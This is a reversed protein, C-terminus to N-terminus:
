LHQQILEVAARRHGLDILTEAKSLRVTQEVLAVASEVSRKKMASCVISQSDAPGRERLWDDYLEVVQETYDVLTQLDEAVKPFLPAHGEFYRKAICEAAGVNAYLDLLFREAAEAWPQRGFMPAGEDVTRDFALCLLTVHLWNAKQEELLNRNANMFLHYLFIADKEALQMARKVADQAQGKMEQRVAARAQAPLRILPYAGDPQGKLSVAWDRLTYFRHVEEMWLLVTQTPTMVSSVRALRRTSNSV